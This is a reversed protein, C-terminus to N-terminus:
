RMRSEVVEHLQVICGQDDGGLPDSHEAPLPSLRMIPEHGPSEGRRAAGFGPAMVLQAISDCVRERHLDVCLRGQPRGEYTETSCRVRALESPLNM